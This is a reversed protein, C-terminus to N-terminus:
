DGLSRTDTQCLDPTEGARLVMATDTPCRRQQCFSSAELRTHRNIHLHPAAQTKGHRMHVATLQLPQVRRCARTNRSALRVGPRVCSGATLVLALCSSFPNSVPCTKCYDQLTHQMGPWSSSSPSPVIRSLHGKGSDRPDPSPCLMGADWGKLQLKVHTGACSGLERSLLQTRKERCKFSLLEM